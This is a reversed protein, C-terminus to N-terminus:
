LTIFKNNDFSKHENAFVYGFQNCVCKTKGITKEPINRHSHGYIWYKAESKKIVKTIDVTFAEEFNSNKFEPATLNKSPVYHTIIVKKKAKSEKLSKNIFNLCKEHEVNIDDPILLKDKYHIKKFDNVKMHIIDKKKEIHSWLTSVIFDVDQITVVCNYYYHINKRIEDIFGDQMTSLDYSNYFEHNGYAVIVQEYNKSAWDWFPNEKYSSTGMIGIDGALVLIDGTVNLPNNSIYESNIEFELHLDSAYQIKM